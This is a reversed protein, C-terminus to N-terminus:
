RMWNVSSRGQWPMEGTKGIACIAVTDLSTDLGAYVSM